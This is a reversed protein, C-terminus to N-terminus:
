STESPTSLELLSPFTSGRRPPSLTSSSVDSRSDDYRPSLFSPSTILINSVPHRSVIVLGQCTRIPGVWILHGIGGVRGQLRINANQPEPPRDPDSGIGGLLSVDLLTDRNLVRAERFTEKTGSYITFSAAGRSMMMLRRVPPFFEPYFLIFAVYQRFHHNGASDV